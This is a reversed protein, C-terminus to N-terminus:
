EMTYVLKFLNENDSYGKHPEKDVLGQVGKGQDKFIEAKLPFASKYKMDSPYFLPDMTINFLDDIMRPIVCKLLKNSEELCPNTNIEILYTNLDEDIIFDYGFM